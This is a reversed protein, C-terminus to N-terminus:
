ELGLLRYVKNVKIIRQDGNGLRENYAKVIESGFKELRKTVNDPTAAPTKKMTVKLEDNTMKEKIKYAKISDDLGDELTELIRQLMSSPDMNYKKAEAIPDEASDIRALLENYHAQGAKIEKDYRVIRDWDDKNMNPYLKLIAEKNDELKKSFTETKSFFEKYESAAKSKKGFAVKISAKLKQIDDITSIYGIRESPAITQAKQLAETYAIKMAEEQSKGEQVLQMTREIVKQLEM